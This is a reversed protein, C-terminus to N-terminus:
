RRSSTVKSFQVYTIETGSGPKKQSEWVSFFLFVERDVKERKLVGRHDKAIIKREGSIRTSFKNNTGISLHM